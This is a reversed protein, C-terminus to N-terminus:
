HDVDSVWLRGRQVRGTHKGRAQSVGVRPSSIRALSARLDRRRTQRCLMGEFRPCDCRKMGNRAAGGSGWLLMEGEPGRGYGMEGPRVARARGDDASRQAFRRGNLRLFRPMDNSRGILAGYASIPGLQLAELSRVFWGLAAAASGFSRRRGTWKGYMDVTLRCPQALRGRGKAGDTSVTCWRNRCISETAQNGHMTCM